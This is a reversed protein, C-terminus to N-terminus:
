YRVELEGNNNIEFEIGEINNDVILNKGELYFDIDLVEDDYTITLEDDLDIEIEELAQIQEPTLDGEGEIHENRTIDRTIRLTKRITCPKTEELIAVVDYQFVRSECDLEIDNTDEHLLEIEYRQNEENWEIGDHLEKQVVYDEDSSYKKLSFMINENSALQYPQGNKTLKGPIIKYDGRLMEGEEYDDLM